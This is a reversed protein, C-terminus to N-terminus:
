TSLVCCLVFYHGHSKGELPLLSAASLIHLYLSLRDASILTASLFFVLFPLITPPACPVTQLFSSESTIDFYVQIFACLTLPIDLFLANRASPVLALARLNPYEQGTHPGTSAPTPPLPILLCCSTLPVHHFYARGRQLHLDQDGQQEGCM